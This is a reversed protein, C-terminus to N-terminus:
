VNKDLYDKLWARAFRLERGVTSVSTGTALSMEETTLGGFYQFEILQAKRPDSGSLANLADELELLVVDTEKAPASSEDLTVRIDQGGRKLASRKEAYNILLRRMLRASIAYFHARDQWDIDIGVLRAYAEHVIATPQLTHGPRESRFLREAIRRLEEYVLPALRDAAKEDGSSWAKLYSTVNQDDDM